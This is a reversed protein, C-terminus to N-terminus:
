REDTPSTTTAERIDGGVGERGPGAFVDVKMGEATFAGRELSRPRADHRQLGRICYVFATMMISDLQARVLLLGVLM